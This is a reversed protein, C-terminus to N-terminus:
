KFNGKKMKKVAKNSSIGSKCLQQSSMIEFFSYKEDRTEKFVRAALSVNSYGAILGECKSLTLMDRLVELGLKYHHNKRHISPDFLMLTKSGPESRLVNEYTILKRGYEKKCIEIAEQSDSALFIQEFDFKQMAENIKKIYDKLSIPVPHGAINGWEVGRIHVGLTRKGTLKQKIEMGLTIELDEKIQIYKKNLRVYDDIQNDFNYSLENMFRKTVDVYDRSFVVNASKRVDSIKLDSVQKFYYNFPNSDKGFLEEDYYPSNTSWDIFPKLNYEEAYDLGQIAFKWYAFFGWAENNFNMYYINSEKNKSGLHEFILVDPKNYDQIWKRFKSDKIYKNILLPYKMFKNKKLANKISM